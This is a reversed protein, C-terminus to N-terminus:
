VRVRIRSAPWVSKSIEIPFGTPDVNRGELVVVPSDYAIQLLQAEARTPLRASISTDSRLFDPTGLRRMLDSIGDSLPFATPIDPFRDASFHHRAVCLPERGTSRLIYLDFIRAGRSLTLAKALHPPARRNELELLEITSGQDLARVNENYKTRSKVQYDVLKGQVYTGSGQRGALLGRKELLDIARRITNRNVGYTDALAKQTPLKMGTRLDQSVIRDAIEAAIGLYDIPVITDHM